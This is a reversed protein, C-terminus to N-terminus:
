FLKKLFVVKQVQSPLFDFYVKIVPYNLQKQKEPDLVNHFILSFKNTMVSLYPLLLFPVTMIQKITNHKKFKHNMKDVSILQVGKFLMVKANYQGLLKHKLIIEFHVTKNVKKIKDRREAHDVVM